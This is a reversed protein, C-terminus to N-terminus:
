SGRSARTIAQNVDRVLKKQWKDQATKLFRRGKFGPHRVKKTVVFEGTRGGSVAALKGVSSKSKYGRMFRLVKAAKPVITHPRAGKDVLDFIGKRSSVTIKVGGIAPTSVVVQVPTKWTSTAGELDKKVGMAVGAYADKIAKRMLTPNAFKKPRVVGIEFSSAM